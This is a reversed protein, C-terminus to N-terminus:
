FFVQLYRISNESIASNLPVFLCTESPCRKTADAEFHRHNWVQNGQLQLAASGQENLRVLVCGLSSLYIHIIAVKFVQKIPDLTLGTVVGIKAEILKAEKAPKGAMTYIYITGQASADDHHFPHRSIYFILGPNLPERGQTRLLM